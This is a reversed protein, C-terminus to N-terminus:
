KPLQPALVWGRRGQERALPQQSLFIRELFSDGWFGIDSRGPPRGQGGLHFERSVCARAPGDPGASM